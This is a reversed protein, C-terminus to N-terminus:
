RMAVALLYKPPTSRAPNTQRLQSEDKCKPCETLYTLQRDVLRQMGVSKEQPRINMLFMDTWGEEPECSYRCSINMCKSSQYRYSCFLRQELKGGQSLINM